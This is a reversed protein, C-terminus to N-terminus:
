EQIRTNLQISLFHTNDMRTGFVSQNHKPGKVKLSLGLYKILFYISIAAMFRSNHM